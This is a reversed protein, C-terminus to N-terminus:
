LMQLIWRPPPPPPLSAFRWETPFGLFFLRSAQELLVLYKRGQADPTDRAAEKDKFVVGEVVSRSSEGSEAKKWEVIDGRKFTSWGYREKEAPAGSFSPGHVVFSQHMKVDILVHPTVGVLVGAKKGRTIDRASRHVFVIRDAMPTGSENAVLGGDDHSMLKITGAAMGEQYMQQSMERIDGDDFACLAIEGEDDDTAADVAHVVCGFWVSGDSGGLDFCMALRDGHKVMALTWKSSSQQQQQQQPHAAKGGGVPKPAPQAPKEELDELESPAFYAGGVFEFDGKKWHSIFGPSDEAEGAKQFDRITCIGEPFLDNAPEGDDNFVLVNHLDKYVFIEGGEGTRFAYTGDEQCMSEFNDADLKGHSQIAAVRDWPRMDGGTVCVNVAEEEHVLYTSYIKGPDLAAGDEGFLRQTGPSDPEETGRRLAAAGALLDM